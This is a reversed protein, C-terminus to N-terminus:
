AGCCKKFKLGSGCPCPANRGTKRPLVLPRPTFTLSRNHYYLKRLTRGRESIFETGFRALFADMIREVPVADDAPRRYPRWSGTALDLDVTFLREATRPEGDPRRSSALVSVVPGFEWYFDPLSHEDQALYLEGDVELWLPNHFPFVENYAVYELPEIEDELRDYPFDYKLRTLDTAACVEDMLRMFLARLTSWDEPGLEAVLAETFGRETVPKLPDIGRMDLDLSFRQVNLNGDHDATGAV